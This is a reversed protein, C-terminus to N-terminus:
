DASIMLRCNRYSEALEAQCDACLEVSGTSIMQDWRYYDGCHGCPVPAIEAVLGEPFIEDVCDNWLCIKRDLPVEGKKCQMRIRDM